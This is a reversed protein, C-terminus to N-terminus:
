CDLADGLRRDATQSATTTHLADAAEDVLLAAAHELDEQLVDDTVGDGVSLVGLALSHSREVDDVRELALAAGQVAKAALDHTSREGEFGFSM